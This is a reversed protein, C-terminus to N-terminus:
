SIILRQNPYITSYMSIGNLSTLNSVTTGHDNAIKWLSDGSKVTYYTHSAGIVRKGYSEGGNVGLAIYGYYGNSRLYRAWVYDSKIIVQNYKVSEGSYYTAVKSYNTGAGTRVNLTTNPYFTGNQNYTQNSAKNSNSSSSNSSSGQKTVHEALTWGVVTNGSKLLLMQNSKGETVQKIQGVTYTKKLVSSDIPTKTDGDDWKAVNSNIKVKDGVKFGGVHYKDVNQKDAASSGIWWKVPHKSTIVKNTDVGLGLSTSYGSDTYQWLAPDKLYHNSYNAEWFADYNSMTGIYNNYFYSGSYLIVPKNTLSQMESGWAKVASSYSGSTTTVEEADNVFFKANKARNYLDKAEQKADSANVYRSYSYVGYPTGAKELNAITNKYQIDKYNSGYQVRVIVFSTESKLALAKQYSVNGQWESIDVVKKVVAGDSTNAASANQTNIASASLGLSLALATGYLVHKLRKNM